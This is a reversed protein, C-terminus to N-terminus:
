GRSRAPRTDLVRCGRADGSAAALGPRPDRRRGARRDARRAGPGDTAGPGRVGAARLQPAPHRRAGGVLAPQRNLPTTYYARTEVGVEALAARARRPSPPASGRLPPLRQPAPANASPRSWTAIGAREYAGAAERRAATWGDLHPAPRPARGGAARRPALQLRGRRPGLPGGPRPRSPTRATRPSRTTTPSSRAPTASPASTRARTSASRPPTASRAPAGARTARGPRRRPTRSCVCGM